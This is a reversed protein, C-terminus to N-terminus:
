AFEARREAPAAPQRRARKAPAFEIYDHRRAPEVVTPKAVSTQAWAAQIQRSTEAYQKAATDWFKMQERLIDHPTTCRALQSSIELNAQARQSYFRMMESQARALGKFPTLVGNASDLASFYALFMANAPTRVLNTMESANTGTYFFM